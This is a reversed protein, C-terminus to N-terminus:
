HRVILEWLVADRDDGPRDNQMLPLREGTDPRYFGTILRYGGPELDDPLTLRWSDTFREGPSWAWTPYAGSRPASDILSVSEGRGVLHVFQTWDGDLRGIVDWRLALEVTGGPVIDGTLRVGTLRAWDALTVDLPRLGVPEPQVGMPSVVSGIFPFEVPSGDLLAADWDVAQTEANLVVVLMDYVTGPQPQPDDPVDPDDLPVDVDDCFIDGARWQSSDFHGLGHISTRDAVIVGDRVFKISFAAPRDTPRLVEWCLTVTHRKGSLYPTDFTYGLLRITDDFTIPEGQLAPLDAPTLRHPSRYAQHQAVPSLIVSACVLLGVTYLQLPRESRPVRTALLALGGAVGLMIPLHAPYLLRGTIIAIQQMWRVLGAFVVLAIVALVIMQKVQLSLGNTHGGNNGRVRPGEGVVGLGALVLLSGLATYTVPHLFVKALGFKAWYSLYVEDLLSVVREITLLDTYSLYPNLHTMFGFPDNYTLWGWAVWPGFLVILPLGLLLGHGAFRGISHRRTHWDLLLAVGVGPAILLVSVKSLAGLALLTGILLLRGPSAGLRLLRLTAWITLTAFAIASIDNNFYASLHVLTPTFAFLATATLRWSERRFIEGAAGYAAIVAVVGYVLSTWRLVRATAVIDPAGFASENTGHFYHNLNDRRNWADPPTIWDNRITYLHALLADSDTSPAGVADAVLGALWYTLPAQGSAQRTSNERVNVRDPLRQERRVVEVYTNHISEDSGEMIPLTFNQAVVGGIFLLLLGLLPFQRRM